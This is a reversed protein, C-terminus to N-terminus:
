EDLYKSLDMVKEVSISENYHTGEYTPHLVPYPGKTQLIYKQKILWEIMAVVRERNLHAFKGYGSVLYLKDSKIRKSESGRLVDTLVTIGYFHKQSIDSLCQLM